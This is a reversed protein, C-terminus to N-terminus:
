IVSCGGKAFGIVVNHIQGRNGEGGHDYHQQNGSTNNAQNMLEM